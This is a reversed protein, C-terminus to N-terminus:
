ECRYSSIWQGIGERSRSVLIAVKGLSACHQTALATAKGRMLNMHRVSVAGSSAAVVQQASAPESVTGAFMAGLALALILQRRTHGM